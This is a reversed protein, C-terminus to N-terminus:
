RPTSKKRQVIKKNIQYSLWATGSGVLAGAIVDSPYHAGLYMRSYGVLGAFTYAPAM